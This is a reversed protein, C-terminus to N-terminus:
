AKSRKGGHPETPPFNLDHKTADQEILSRLYETTSKEGALQKIVREQEPIVPLRIQKMESPM